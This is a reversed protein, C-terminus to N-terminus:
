AEAREQGPTRGDPQAEPCKARTLRLGAGRCPAATRDTGWLLPPQPPDAGAPGEPPKARSHPDAVGAVATGHARLTSPLGQSHRPLRSLLLEQDPLPEDQGTDCEGATGARQLRRRGVLACTSGWLEWGAALGSVKGPLQVSPM